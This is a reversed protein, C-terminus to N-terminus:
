LLFFGNFPIYPFAEKLLLFAGTVHPAAMSTGSKVDFGNDGSASRVSQGPASVEPYIELSGGNESPCQTPGRTSFTSINLNEDNANVSAVCFTNVLGTNIRQPAKVGENNPGDNGASFINGIGATEIAEFQLVRPQLLINSQSILNDVRILIQDYGIHKFQIIQDSNLEKVDLSFEGNSNTSVGTNKDIVVINVGSLRLGTIKDSVTGNLVQGFYLSTNLAIIFLYNKM